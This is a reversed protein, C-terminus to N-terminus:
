PRRRWAQRTYGADTDAQPRSPALRTGPIAHYGPLPLGSPETPNHPASQPASRKPLLRPWSLRKNRADANRAYGRWPPRRGCWRRRARWATSWSGTITSAAACTACSPLVRTRTSRPSGACGPTSRRPISACAASPRCRPWMPTAWGLGCTGAGRHDGYLSASMRRLPLTARGTSQLRGATDDGLRLGPVIAQRREARGGGRGALSSSTLVGGWLALSGVGIGVRRQLGSAVVANRRSMAVSSSCAMRRTGPLRACRRSPASPRSLLAAVLLSLQSILVGEERVASTMASGSSGWLAAASGYLYIVM